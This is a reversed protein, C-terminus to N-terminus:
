FVGIRYVVPSSTKYEHGYRAGAVVIDHTARDEFGWWHSLNLGPEDPRKTDIVLLSGKILKLTRRNVEGICLPYRPNNARCNSPSINGIWFCRGGSHWLLQSMASPSFFPTGDDYGWPQPRTWHQGGDSSVAYWKYSPIQWAPDKSGGNSGRMVCLLRGDPMEALTPEIMGRTSRAPDGEIPQSIAWELRNDARWSGLILIVDTYTWGGGPNSLKGDAGLKCAQAPIIIRGRAHPHDALRRRGHLHREQRPLGRRVSEGGDQRKARHHISRKEAVHKAVINRIFDSPAAPTEKNELSM